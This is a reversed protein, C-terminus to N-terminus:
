PSGSFNCAPVRESISCNLVSHKLINTDIFESFKNLLDKDPLHSPHSRTNNDIKHHQRTKNQSQELISFWM